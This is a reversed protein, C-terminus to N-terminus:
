HIESLRVKATDSDGLAEGSGTCQVFYKLRQITICTPHRVALAALDESEKKIIGHVKEVM